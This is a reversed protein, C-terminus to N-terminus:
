SRLSRATVARAHRANAQQVLSYPVTAQCIHAVAIVSSLLTPEVLLAMGHVDAECSTPGTLTVTCNDAGLPLGTTWKWM